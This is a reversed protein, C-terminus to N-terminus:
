QSLERVRSFAAAFGSLSVTLKVPSGNGANVAAISLQKGTKLPALTEDSFLVPVLCGTEICTLFPLRETLSVEDVSLTVGDAVRLGFPALLMGDAQNEASAVLELALLREAAGPRGLAQSLSCNKKGDAISCSVTWDGHDENLSTAGGPLTVTRAAKEQALAPTGAILALLVAAITNTRCHRM